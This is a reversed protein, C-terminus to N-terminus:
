LNGLGELEEETAPPPNREDYVVAEQVDGGLAETIEDTTENHNSGIRSQGQGFRKQPVSGSEIVKPENEFAVGFLESMDRSVIPKEVVLMANFYAAVGFNYHQRGKKDVYSMDYSHFTLSVRVLSGSAIKYDSDRDIHVGKGNDNLYAFRPPYDEGTSASINWCDKLHPHKAILQHNDNCDQFYVNMEELPYKFDSCKVVDDFVQELKDKEEDTISMFCRYKFDGKGEFQIPYMINDGKRFSVHGTAMVNRTTRQM